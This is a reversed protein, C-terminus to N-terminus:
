STLEPHQYINGIVELETKDLYDRSLKVNWHPNPTVYFAGDGFKVEMPAYPKLELLDGEYIEVDNKDKLGTFQMVHTCEDYFTNYPSLSASDDPDCIDGNVDVEVYLAAGLGAIVNQEMSSSSGNWVRFKIERM